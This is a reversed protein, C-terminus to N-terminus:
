EILVYSINDRLTKDYVFLFNESVRIVEDPEFVDQLQLKVQEAFLNYGEAFALKALYIVERNLDLGHIDLFQVNGLAHEFTNRATIEADVTALYIFDGIFLDDNM